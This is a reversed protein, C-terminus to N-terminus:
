TTARELKLPDIYNDARGHNYAARPNNQQRTQIHIHSVLQINLWKM